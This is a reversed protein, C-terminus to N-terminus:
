GVVDLVHDMADHIVAFEELDVFMPGPIEDDAERVHVAAGDADDGVLGGEKGAHRSM